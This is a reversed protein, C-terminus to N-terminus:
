FHKASTSQLESREASRSQIKKKIKPDYSGTDPNQIQRKLVVRVDVMRETLKWPNRAKQITSVQVLVPVEGMRDLFQVHPAEQTKHVTRIPSFM